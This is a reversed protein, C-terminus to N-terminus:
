IIENKFESILQKTIKEFNFEISADDILMQKIEFFKLWELFSKFAKESKATLYFSSECYYKDLDIRHKFINSEFSSGDGKKRRDIIMQLDVIKTYIEIIKKAKLEYFYKLRLEKHKLRFDFITKLVYGIVGLVVTLQAWYNIIFEKTLSCYKAICDNM